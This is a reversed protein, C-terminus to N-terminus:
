RNSPQSSQGERKAELAKVRYLEASLQGIREREEENMAHWPADLGDRIEDCDPPEPSDDPPMLAHLRLLGSLYEIYADSRIM